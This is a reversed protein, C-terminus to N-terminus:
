QHAQDGIPQTHAPIDPVIEVLGQRIVGTQGADARAIPNCDEAAEKFRNHLLALLCAQDPALLQVDIGGFDLGIGCHIRERGPKGELAVQSM